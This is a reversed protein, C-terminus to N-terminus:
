LSREPDLRDDVIRLRISLRHAVRRSNLDHRDFFQSIERRQDVGDGV